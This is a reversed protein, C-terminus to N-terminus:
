LLSGIKTSLERVGLCSRIPIEMLLGCRYKTFIKDYDNSVQDSWLLTEPFVASNGLKGWWILNNKMFASWDCKRLLRFAVLAVSQIWVFAWTTSPCVPGERQESKWQLLVSSSKKLFCFGRSQTRSTM